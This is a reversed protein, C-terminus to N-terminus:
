GKPDADSIMSERMRTDHGWDKILMSVHGNIKRKSSKLDSLSIEEDGEVHVLGAKIYTTMSM